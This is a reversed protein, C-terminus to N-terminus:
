SSSFLPHNRLKEPFYMDNAISRKLMDTIAKKTLFGFRSINYFLRLFNCFERPTIKFSHSEGEYDTSFEMVWPSEQQVLKSKQLHAIAFRLKAACAEEASKTKKTKEKPVYTMSGDEIFCSLVIGYLDSVEPKNEIFSMAMDWATAFATLVMIILSKQGDARKWPSCINDKETTPPSNIFKEFEDPKACASYYIKLVDNVYEFVDRFEPSVESSKMLAHSDIESRTYAAM